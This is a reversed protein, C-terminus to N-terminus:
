VSETGANQKGAQVKCHVWRAPHRVTRTENEQARLPTYCDQVQYRSRFKGSDDRKRVETNGNLLRFDVGNNTKM